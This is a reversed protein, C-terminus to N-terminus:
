GRRPLIVTATAPTTIGERDNEVWVDLDVRHSGDDATYTRTVRGRLKMTDGPRNMRRMEYSLRCVWGEIGAFDTLLRALAARTFGTNVFIDPHGGARAFPRDHHVPYFDQSGSVQEAIKTESLVLDFGPLEQGEAVDDWYRQAPAAVTTM